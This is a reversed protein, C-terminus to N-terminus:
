GASDRASEADSPETAPETPATEPVAAKPIAAEPTTAKPAASAQATLLSAADPLERGPLLPGVRALVTLGGVVSQGQEVAIRPHAAEPVYLEVTSGLKIIGLRQGRQLVLDPRAICVITRALVGAVQRVAAVPHRGTPHLLVTLVSENVEASEPNLANLHDGPKHTVSAVIGHCPSRNVHVVLVSMFIRVCVAPGDFPEFRELRHISSVVGDAPSVLLGRETPIRRHPDRFFALMAATVLVVPIVWPGGDAAVVTISLLVGIALVTSWERKAYGSLM